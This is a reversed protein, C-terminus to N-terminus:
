EEDSILRQVPTRGAKDYAPVPKPTDEAFGSVPLDGIPGNGSLTPQEAAFIHRRDPRIERLHILLRWLSAIM